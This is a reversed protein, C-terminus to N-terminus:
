QSFATIFKTVYKDQMDSVGQDCTANYGTTFVSVGHPVGRFFIRKFWFILPVGTMSHYLRCVRASSKVVPGPEILLDRVAHSQVVKVACTYYLCPIQTRLKASM